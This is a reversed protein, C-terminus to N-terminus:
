RSTSRPGKPRRDHARGALVGLAAGGAAALITVAVPADFDPWVAAALLWGVAAGLMGAVTHDFARFPEHWHAVLVPVALLLSALAALL